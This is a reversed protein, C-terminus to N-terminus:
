GQRRRRRLVLCLAATVLLAVSGPEPIVSSWTTGFRIEDAHHVPSNGVFRTMSLRDFSFDFNAGTLTATPVAPEAGPTPNRYIDVQDGAADFTFKLV